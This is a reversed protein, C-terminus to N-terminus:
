RLQAKEEYEVPTAYNLTSHRRRRNYFGEIWEFLEVRLQFYAVPGFSDGERQARYALLLSQTYVM